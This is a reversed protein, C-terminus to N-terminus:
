WFPPFHGKKKGSNRLALTMNGWVSAGLLYEVINSINTRPFCMRYSDIRHNIVWIAHAVCRAEHIRRYSCRLFDSIFGVFTYFSNLGGFLRAFCFSEPPSSAGCVGGFSVIPGFSGTVSLPFYGREKNIIDCEGKEVRTKYLVRKKIM